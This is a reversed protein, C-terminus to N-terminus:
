KIEVPEIVKKELNSYTDALMNKTAKLINEKFPAFIPSLAIFGIGTLFVGGMAHIFLPFGVVPAMMALGKIGDSSTNKPLSITESM